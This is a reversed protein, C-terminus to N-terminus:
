ALKGHQGASSSDHHPLRLSRTRCEMSYDELTLDYIKKLTVDASATASDLSEGLCETQIQVETTHADMARFRVNKTSTVGNAHYLASLLDPPHSQLVRILVIQPDPWLQRLRARSHQQWPRGNLWDLKDYIKKRMGWSEFDLFVEWAVEIPVPVIVRSLVERM